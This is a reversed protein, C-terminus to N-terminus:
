NSAPTLTALAARPSPAARWWAGCRFGAASRESRRRDAREWAADFRAVRGRERHIPWVCRISQNIRLSISAVHEDVADMKLFVGLQLIAPHQPTARLGALPQEPVPAVWAMRVGSAEGFMLGFYPANEFAGFARIFSQVGFQPLAAQAQAHDHLFDRGHESRKVSVAHDDACRCALERVM